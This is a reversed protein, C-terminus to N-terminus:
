HAMDRLVRPPLFSVLSGGDELTGHLEVLAVGGKKFALRDAHKAGLLHGLLDSMHPEHGVLGVVADQPLKALAKGLEALSGSALSEEATVPADDWAAAALEATRRARPLPSTLIAHPRDVLRALGRAAKAFKKEGEPTLPRDDDAYGDTGREVATAHRILLLQM